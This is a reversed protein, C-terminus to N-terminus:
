REPARCNGLFSFQNRTAMPGFDFDDLTTLIDDDFAHYVLFPNLQAYLDLLVPSSVFLLDSDSLDRTEGPYGKAIITLRIGPVLDKIRARMAAPMSFIDQFLVVDPSIERLQELLINTQWNKGHTPIGRERAWALQLPECDYLIETAENGLSAMAKVFGGAHSLKKSLITELQQPYPKDALLPAESYTAEIAEQYGIGQLRVISYNGM